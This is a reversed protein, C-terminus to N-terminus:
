ALLDDLDDDVNKAVESTDAGEATPSVTTYVGKKGPVQFLIGKNVMRYCKNNLFRREHVTNTRRYLEILLRDLEIQDGSAKVVAYIEDELEDTKVGSLQELLETPLDSLDGYKAPVPKSWRRLRDIEELAATLGEIRREWLAVSNAPSGKTPADDVWRQFVAQAATIAEIARDM